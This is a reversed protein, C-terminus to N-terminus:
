SDTRSRARVGNRSSTHRERASPIRNTGPENSSSPGEVEQGLGDLLEVLLAAGPAVM